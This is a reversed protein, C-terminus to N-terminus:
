ILGIFVFKRILNQYLCAKMLNFLLISKISLKEKNGHKQTDMWATQFSPLFRFNLDFTTKMTHICVLVVTHFFRLYIANFLMLYLWLVRGRLLKIKIIYRQM